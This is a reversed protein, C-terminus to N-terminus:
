RPTGQLLELIADVVAKPAERPPNHGIKPLVRREFPGAFFRGHHASAQPPHVSDAEGQLAITPVAILPQPALRQEIAEVSRTAPGM